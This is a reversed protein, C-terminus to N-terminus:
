GRRANKTKSAVEAVYERLQRMNSISKHSMQKLNQDPKISLFTCLMETLSKDDLTLVYHESIPFAGLLEQQKDMPVDDRMTFPKIILNLGSGGGNALMRLLRLFEKVDVTSDGDTDIKMLIEDLQAPEPPRVMLSTLVELLEQKSLSGSCDHDLADFAAQVDSLEDLSFGVSLATQIIREGEIIALREYVRQYICCFADFHIGGDTSWNSASTGSDKMGLHLAMREDSEVIIARIDMAEDLVKQALSYDQRTTLLKAAALGGVLHELPLCGNSDKNSMEDWAAKLKLKRRGMMHNRTAILLELFEAFDVEENGDMDIDELMTNILPAAHPSYPQLGIHKLLRRVEPQGLYGSKDSDYSDYLDRLWLLESRFRSFLNEKLNAKSRIDWERESAYRLAREEYQLLKSYVVEADLLTDPRPAPGGEAQAETHIGPPLPGPHKALRHKGIMRDFQAQTICTAHHGKTLEAEFLPAYVETKLNYIEWRAVPVVEAGFAALPIGMPKVTEQIVDPKDERQSSGVSKTVMKKILGKALKGADKPVFISQKKSKAKAAWKSAASFSAADDQEQQKDQLEQKSYWWIQGKGPAANGWVLPVSQEEVEMLEVILGQVAREVHAREEQKQGRLGLDHLGDLAGQISLLQYENCHMRFAAEIAMREETPLADFCATRHRRKSLMRDVLRKNSAVNKIVSNKIRGKLSDDSRTYLCTAKRAVARPEQIITEQAEEHTSEKLMSPRCIVPRAISIEKAEENNVSGASQQRRNDQGNIRLFVKKLRQQQYDDKALDEESKGKLTKRSAAAAEEKSPQGKRWAAAAQRARLGEEELLRQRRQAMEYQEHRIAQLFDPLKGRCMYGIDDPLLAIAMRADEAEGEAIIGAAFPKTPQEPTVPLFDLLALEATKQFRKRREGIFRRGEPAAAPPHPLVAAHTGATVGPSVKLAIGTHMAELAQLLGQPCTAQSLGGAATTTDSVPSPSAGGRMAASGKSAHRLGPRVVAVKSVKPLGLSPAGVLPYYEAHWGKLDFGDTRELIDDDSWIAARKSPPSTEELGELGGFSPESLDEDDVAAWERWGLFLPHAPGEPM